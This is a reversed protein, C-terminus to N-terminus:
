CFLIILYSIDPKKQTKCLIDLFLPLSAQNHWFHRV